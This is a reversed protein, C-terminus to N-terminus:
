RLQLQRFSTEDFTAVGADNLYARFEANNELADFVGDGFCLRSRWNWGGTTGDRWSRPAGVFHTYLSQPGAWPVFTIQDFREWSGYSENFEMWNLTEAQATAAMRRDDANFIWPMLLSNGAPGPSMERAASIVTFDALREPRSIGKFPPPPALPAAIEYPWPRLLWEHTIDMAYPIVEGALCERAAAVALPYYRARLYREKAEPDLFQLGYNYPDRDVLSQVLTGILGRENRRVLEDRVATFVSWYVKDHAWPAVQRLGYTTLVTLEKNRGMLAAVALRQASVQAYWTDSAFREIYYGYADRYNNIAEWLRRVEGCYLRAAQNYRDIADRYLSLAGAPRQLAYPVPLDRYVAEAPPEVKPDREDDPLTFPLEPITGMGPVGLMGRITQALTVARSDDLRVMFERNLSAQDADVREFFHQEIPTAYSAGWGGPPECVLGVGIGSPFQFPLRPHVIVSRIPHWLRESGTHANIPDIFFEWYWEGFEAITEKVYKYRISDQHFWPQVFSAPIAPPLIEAPGSSAPNGVSAYTLEVKHYNAIERRQAEVNQAFRESQAWQEQHVWSRHAAMVAPVPEDQARRTHTEFETLIKGEQEWIFQEIALLIAEDPAKEKFNAVINRLGVQGDFMPPGPRPPGSGSAAPAGDVYTDHVWAIVSAARRKENRHLRLEDPDTIGSGVDSRLADLQERLPAYARDLAELRRKVAERMEESNVRQARLRVLEQNLRTTIAARTPEIARWITETSGDQCIVLNQAATANLLQAMSTAAAHAAADAATQLRQRRTAVEATNWIMALLAVLCWITLLVLVSMAGREDSHLRRAHRRAAGGIGRAMRMVGKM